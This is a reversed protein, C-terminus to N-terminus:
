EIEQEIFDDKYLKFQEEFYRYLKMTLDWDECAEDINKIVQIITDHDLECIASEIHELGVLATIMVEKIM